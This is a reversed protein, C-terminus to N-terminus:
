KTWADKIHREVSSMEVVGKDDDEEEEKEEEGPIRKGEEEKRQMAEKVLKDVGVTNKTM